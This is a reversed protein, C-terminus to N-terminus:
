EEVRLRGARNIVQGDSLTVAFWIRIPEDDEAQATGGSVEVSVGKNAAITGSIVRAEEDIWPVVTSTGIVAATGLVITVDDDCSVTVSSITLSQFQLYETFDAYMVLEDDIHKVQTGRMDTAKIECTM